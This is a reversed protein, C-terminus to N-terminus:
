KRSADGREVIMTQVNALKMANESMQYSGSENGAGSSELPILNMGCIPCDGPENQRIQPHMSCTWIQNESSEVHQHNISEATQNNSPKILWGLLIGAFVLALAIIINKRNKM